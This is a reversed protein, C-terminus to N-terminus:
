LVINRSITSAKMDVGENIALIWKTSYLSFSDNFDPASTETASSTFLKLRSRYALYTHIFVHVLSSAHM